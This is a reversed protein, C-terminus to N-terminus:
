FKKLKVFFLVPGGDLKLSRIFKEEHKPLTLSIAEDPNGKKELYHALFRKMPAPMSISGPMCIIRGDPTFGHIRSLDIHWEILSATNPVNEGMSQRFCFSHGTQRDYCHAIYGTVDKGKQTNKQVETLVYRPSIYTRGMGTQRYFASPQEQNIEAQSDGTYVFKAVLKNSHLQWITDSNQPIKYLYGDSSNHYMPNYATKEGGFSSRMAPKLQKDLSYIGSGNANDLVIWNGQSNGARYTYMKIYDTRLYKGDYDFVILRNHSVIIVEKRTRDLELSSSFGYQLEELRDEDYKFIGMSEGLVSILKGKNDYIVHRTFADTGTQAEYSLFIRKDDAQIDCVNHREDPIKELAVCEYSEMYNGLPKFGDQPRETEFPTRSDPHWPFTDRINIYEIQSLDKPLLPLQQLQTAGVMDAPEQTLPIERTAVCGVIALSALLLLYITKKMQTINQKLSQM